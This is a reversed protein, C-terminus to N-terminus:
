LSSDAAWAYFENQTIMWNEPIEDPLNVEAAGQFLLKILQFMSDVVKNPGNCKAHSFIVSSWVTIGASCTIISAALAESDFMMRLILQPLDKIDAEPVSLKVILCHQSPLKWLNHETTHYSHEILLLFLGGSQVYNNLNIQIHLHNFTHFNM